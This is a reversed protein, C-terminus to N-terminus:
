SLVNAFIMKLIKKVKKIDIAWGASALRLDELFFTVGLQRATIKESEVRCTLNYPFFTLVDTKGALVVLTM